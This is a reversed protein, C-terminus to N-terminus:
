AYRWPAKWLEERHVGVSRLLRCEGLVTPKRETLVSGSKTVQNLLQASCCVHTNAAWASVNKKSPHLEM